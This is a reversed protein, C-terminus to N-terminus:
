GGNQISGGNKDLKVFYQERQISEHQQRFVFENYFVSRLFIPFNWLLPGQVDQVDSAM